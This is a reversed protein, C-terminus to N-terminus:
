TLANLRYEPAKTGGLKGVHTLCVAGNGNGAFKTRAVIAESGALDDLGIPRTGSCSKNTFDITARVARKWDAFRVRAILRRRSQRGEPTLASHM